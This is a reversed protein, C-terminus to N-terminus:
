LGSESTVRGSAVAAKLAQYDRENQDAYSAGFDAMSEDFATSNGLYAAIAVADGSRAHAKALTWGCLEAYQVMLEPEMVDVLASGKGDWLQRVYFDREAADPPNVRIWGLMIDSAAQTLRQGEVVRQGHNAYQSKGLFPELVSAQAEKVQLFLPDGDDRGLMLVIWARTGVSGVGVVKRAADVYRFRELLKRRDGPLTRRYARLIDRVSAEIQEAGFGEFLDRIGVILPPDGIIRLEGDVTGVLKDFARISDKARTKALNKEARKVAKPSLSKSLQAFLSEVDVRAYWIDLNRMGAFQGMAERYRRGVALAIQRKVGDDFGRDRAAVDFSAVLRKVDWEFPGPLTEDFDNLSFVLHRDPSMFVGFNSLHADGCLQVHLGSRPGTALDSAMLYAAGRYFTFPSVLMRGYRIPVLEPVRSAGQEELLAVPDPRHPAPEWAAHSRRPVEARAAKGRAIREEVSFHTVVKAASPKRASKFPEVVTVLPAPEPSAVPAPPSADDTPEVSVEPESSVPAGSLDSPDRIELDEPNEPDGTNEPVGSIEDAMTGDDGYESM